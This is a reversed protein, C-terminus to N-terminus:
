NKQPTQPNPTRDSASTVQLLRQLRTCTLDKGASPLRTAGRGSALGFLRSTITHLYAGTPIRYIASALFNFMTMRMGKLYLISTRRFRHELKRPSATHMVQHLLRVFKM